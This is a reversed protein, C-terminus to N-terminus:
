KFLISDTKRLPKKLFRNLGNDNSNDSNYHINETIDLSALKIDTKLVQNLSNFKKIQIDEKEFADILILYFTKSNLTTNSINFNDDPIHDNLIWM